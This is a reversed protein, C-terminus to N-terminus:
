TNDPDDTPVNLIEDFRRGEDGSNASMGTIAVNTPVKGFLRDLLLENARISPREREVGTIPDIVKKGIGAAVLAEIIDQIFEPHKRGYKKFEDRLRGRNNYGRPNGTQGPKWPPKLGSTNRAM